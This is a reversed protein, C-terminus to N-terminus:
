KLFNKPAFAVNLHVLFRDIEKNRKKKREEERKKARRWKDLTRGACQANHKAICAPFLVSCPPTSCTV